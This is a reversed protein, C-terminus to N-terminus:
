RKNGIRSFPPTAGVIVDLANGRQVCAHKPHTLFRDISKTLSHAGFTEGCVPCTHATWTM